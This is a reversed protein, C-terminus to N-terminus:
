LFVRDHIFLRLSKLRIYEDMVNYYDRILSRLQDSASFDEIKLKLNKLETINIGKGHSKWKNNDSLDMAIDEARKEKQAETVGSGDQHSNWNKFKYKVLWKKLLDITLDRAQEFSRLEGLDIEKLWILEANTLANNQAKDIFEKVKDLYGLAAVFKGDKNLVQPDIPGLVSSYDMYINDGSMCFITGASYAYDPVIFNVEQYHHRLVNVYREVTEASGGPTTLVVFLKDHKMADKKLEEILKVFIHPALPGLEGYYVFVDADLYQELSNLKNNLLLRLSDEITSNMIKAKKTFRDLFPNHTLPVPADSGSQFSPDDQVLGNSVHADGFM